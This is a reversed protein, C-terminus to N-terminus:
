CRTPQHRVERQRGSKASGCCTVARIGQLRSLPSRCIFHTLHALDTTRMPPRSKPALAPCPVASIPSPRAPTSAYWRAGASIRWALTGPSLTMLPRLRLRVACAAGDTTCALVAAAAKRRYSGWSTEEKEESKECFQGLIEVAHQPFPNQWKGHVVGVRLMSHWSLHDSLSRPACQV